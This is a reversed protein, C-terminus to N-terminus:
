VHFKFSDARLWTGVSLDARVSAQWQWRTKGARVSRGRRPPACVAGETVHTRTTRPPMACAEQGEELFGIAEGDLQLTARVMVKKAVVKYVQLHAKTEGYVAHFYYRGRAVSPPWLSSQAWWQAAQTVDRRM